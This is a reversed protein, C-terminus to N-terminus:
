PQNERIIADQAELALDGSYYPSSNYNVVIQLGNGYSTAMVGPALSGRAVIPQGKVPALLENLWNYTEVIEQGWQAYSSSFIWESPTNLIRATPEQTLFYSPYVGFDAHRLLDAQLDSSFNMAPGYYPVYGALVIQLFPVFETTYNYGSDSLPIDYYADMFGYMYDNPRYFTKSGESDALLAQYRAIAEERNLEHGSRFDSYLTSGIGDLALGAGTEALVDESLGRYADSLAELNLFYNVKNRNYGLLNANTISMALDRRASYGGEDRLAAQPDFYLYVHGHAAAVEEALSRLDDSSGLSRDIKLTHPFSTSAGRPQWGYYVVDLNPAALEAVIERMRAVTTMPISRYWFLVREREAGLFELRLGIDEAADLKKHLMGKDLLYDQYSRAMGVYDSDDGTLFRYQITVDFANTRPQLTTVGAGARNTAQFYSQNYIFANYLFNFQTTVGAPHARVEGYSAGKEVVALFANEKVGHVMGTVPISLQFPRNLRPDYPLVGIMGLDAGYYRGYFMNRAKTEAALHILTGSGDPIFMYGAVSDARTAGFFPYVHLVGLKFEPDAERISDFPVDVRVGEEELRVRVVLSISPETFTVEVQFGQDITEFVIAHEANTISNREDAASQDLYDISIGSQAFATWTRNLDDEETVEDLNSSWVYGSRKDLVKFAATEPNAYLRFNGNEGVLTYLDEPIEQAAPEQVAAKTVPPAPATASLRSPDVSLLLGTLILSRILRQISPM